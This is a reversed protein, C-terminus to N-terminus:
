ILLGALLSCFLMHIMTLTIPFQFMMVSLIYKNFLIVAASLFIWTGMYRCCLPPLVHFSVAPMFRAATM